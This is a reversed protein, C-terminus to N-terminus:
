EQLCGQRHGQALEACVVTFSSASPEPLPSQAMLRPALVRDAQGLHPQRYIQYYFSLNETHKTYLVVMCIFPSLVVSAAGAPVGSSLVLM